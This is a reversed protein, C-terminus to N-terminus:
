RMGEAIAIAEDRGLSTELRYTVTGDSWLLVDGVWRRADDVFGGRGDWFFIHPDGTLWYGDHGGVEVPEIITDSSTAKTFFERGVIGEFQSILLGVEPQLTAPLDPRTPWLLTVQGGKTHDIYATEPPGLAPDTPLLVKFDARADLEARDTPDLPDGLRLSTGLAETPRSATPGASPVPRISPLPPAEGLLIRLGPLGLGLAGAIAVVALLAVLALVLARRAPRWSWRFPGTQGDRRPVPLTEVRARVVAAIDSGGPLAAEPWAVVPVLGRLAVELDGDPLQYLRQDAM